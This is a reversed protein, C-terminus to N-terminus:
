RWQALWPARDQAEQAAADFEALVQQHDLTQRWLCYEFWSINRIRIEALQADDVTDIRGQSEVEVM